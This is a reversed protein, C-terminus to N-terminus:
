GQAKLRDFHLTLFGNDMQMGLTHFPLNVFGCDSDACWQRHRKQRAIDTSLNSTRLHIQGSAEHEWRMMASRM